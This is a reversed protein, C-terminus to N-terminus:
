SSSGDPKIREVIQGIEHYHTKMEEIPFQNVLYIDKLWM